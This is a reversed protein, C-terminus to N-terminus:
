RSTQNAEAAVCIEEVFRRVRERDGTKFAHVIEFPNIELRCKENILEIASRIIWSALAEDGMNVEVLAEYYRKPDEWLVQDPDGLLRKLHHELVTGAPYAHEDLIRMMLSSARRKM